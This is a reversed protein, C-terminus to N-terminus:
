IISILVAQKLKKKEKNLVWVAHARNCLHAQHNIETERVPHFFFGTLGRRAAMGGLLTDDAATDIFAERFSLLLRSAVQGVLPAFVGAHM